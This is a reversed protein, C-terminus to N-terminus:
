RRSVPLKYYVDDFTGALHRDIEIFQHIIGPYFADDLLPRIHLNGLFGVQVERMSKWPEHTSVSYTFEFAIM